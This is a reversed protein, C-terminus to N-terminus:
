SGHGARGSRAAALLTNEYEEKDLADLPTLSNLEQRRRHFWAVVGEPTWAHRLTNVLRVVLVLRSGPEGKDKLWRSLTRDSIDLLEALEKQSIDPLWELLKGVLSKKDEDLEPVHGDLADRLIHRIAEANVILADLMDLNREDPTNHVSEACNILLEKIEAVDELSLDDKHLDRNLEYLRDQTENFRASYEKDVNSNKTLEKTSELLQLLLDRIEVTSEKLGEIRQERETHVKTTM